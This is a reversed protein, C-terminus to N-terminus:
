ESPELVVLSIGAANAAELVSEKELLIVKGAEVALCSCRAKKLKKLTTMGIVPIDWRMDHRPQAMKVIVCGEGGVKGARLIMQDTGEFGEVAIVTGQKIAVSQGAQLKACSKALETGQVIDQQEQPTPARRTLIGAQVLNLDMFQHAPLLEVGLTQLERGIAGFITDANKRPLSKLLERMAKDLRAHFLNSPTIQGAMVACPIGFDVFAQRFNELEGVFMWRVEDVVQTIEKRTEGRFAVATIKKVGQARASRALEVPYAGKG